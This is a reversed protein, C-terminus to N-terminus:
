DCTQDLQLRPKLRERWSVPSFPRDHSLGPPPRTASNPGIASSRGAAHASRQVAIGSQIVHCVMACVAHVPAALNPQTADNTPKELSPESGQSLVSSRATLTYLFRPRLNIAVRHCPQAQFVAMAYGSMIGFGLPHSEEAGRWTGSSGEPRVAIKAEARRTSCIPSDSRPNGQKPSAM